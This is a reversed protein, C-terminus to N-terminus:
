VQVGAVFLRGASRVVEVQSGYLASLTESTIVEEVTGIASHGNALYLIRDVFPLLPNIDHTVMLVAAHRARCVRSVLSVIEQERTMDLNALPEDLLLMRPNTVVAQAILLRQREGGSLLSVPRRALDVADVERLAQDIRETRARSPLGPGWRTGDVGFRVLDRGRLATDAELTRFQPVYGIDPNGRGPRRGFVEVSGAAVPVLGLLVKLLTTKGAGNPGLVAVFEGEEVRFGLNEQILTDGLRIRVAQAAAAATLAGGRPLPASSM